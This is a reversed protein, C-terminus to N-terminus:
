RWLPAVLDAAWAAPLLLARRRASCSQVGHPPRRSELDALSAKGSNTVGRGCLIKVQKNVQPKLHQMSSKLTSCVPLAQVSLFEGFIFLIAPPPPSPHSSSRHTALFRISQSGPHIEKFSKQHLHHTVTPAARSGLHGNSHCTWPMLAITVTKRPQGLNTSPLPTYKADMTNPHFLM